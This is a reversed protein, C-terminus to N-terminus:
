HCGAGPGESLTLPRSTPGGGALTRWMIAWMSWACAGHGKLLRSDARCRRPQWQGSRRIVCTAGAAPTCVPCAWTFWSESQFRAKLNSLMFPGTRGCVEAYADNLALKEKSSSSCPLSVRMGAMFSFTSLKGERRTPATTRGLM